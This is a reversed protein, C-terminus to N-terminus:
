VRRDGSGGTAGVVSLHKQRTLEQLQHLTATRQVQVFRHVDVGPATVALALKTALESRHNGERNVPATWWAEAEARGAETLRYIIRGGADEGLGQVLGDRELRGLTTYIQGVNVPWTGATRGEFEARLQAGYMPRETLLVLLGQRVSM